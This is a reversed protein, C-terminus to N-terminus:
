GTFHKIYWNKPVVACKHLIVAQITKLYQMMVSPVRNENEGLFRIISSILVNSYFPM